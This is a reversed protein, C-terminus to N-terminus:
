ILASTSMTGGTSDNGGIRSSSSFLKSESGPDDHEGNNLVAGLDNNALGALFLKLVSLLYIICNIILKYYLNITLFM